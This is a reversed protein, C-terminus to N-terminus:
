GKWIKVSKILMQGNCDGAKAPQYEAVNALFYMPQRPVNKTVTLVVRSDLYFTLKSRTWSLSYTHWGRTLNPSYTARARSTAAHFFSGTLQRVGWSEVMDTEPFNKGNAAELWLAPWLGTAHPINAVVQVFGYQFRLGPFMTVMGSACGYTKPQGSQNFGQTTRRTAVLHLSGGFVKVQSPTYWEAEELNGWNTCGGGFNPLQPYCTDWIKTNLHSGGFTANVTPKGKPTPVSRPVATAAGSRATSAQSATAPLAGLLAVAGAAAVSAALNVTLRM